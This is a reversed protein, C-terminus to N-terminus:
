RSRRARAPLRGPHGFAQRQQGNVGVGVVFRRLAGRRQGYWSSPTWVTSTHQVPPSSPSRWFGVSRSSGALREVAECGLLLAFEDGRHSCGLERRRGLDDAEVDDLHEAVAVGAHGVGFRVLMGVAEVLGVDVFRGAAEHRDDPPLSRLHDDGVAVVLLRSGADRGGARARCRPARTRAHPRGRSTGPPEALRESRRLEVVRHPGLGADQRDVLHHQPQLALRRELLLPEVPGALVM